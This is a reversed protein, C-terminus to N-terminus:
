LHSRSVCQGSEISKESGGRLFEFCIILSTRMRSVNTGHNQKRLNDVEAFALGDNDTRTADATAPCHCCAQSETSSPNPDAGAEKRRRLGIHRIRVFLLQQSSTSTVGDPGLYESAPWQSHDSSTYYM